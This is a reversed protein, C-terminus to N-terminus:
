VNYSTPPPPPPTPAPSDCELWLNSVKGVLPDCTIQFVFHGHTSAKMEHAMFSEFFSLLRHVRTLILNRLVVM